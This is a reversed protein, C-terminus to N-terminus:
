DTLAQLAARVEKDLAQRIFGATRQELLPALRGPLQLLAQRIGSAIGSWQRRVDDVRVLKGGLEQAKLEAM